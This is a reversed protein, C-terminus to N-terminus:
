MKQAIFGGIAAIVFNAIMSLPINVLAVFLAAAVGLGGALAATGADGTATGVGFGVAKLVLDLVLTIIGSVLAAFLGALGAGVLDLKFMKVARYGAWAFLIVNLPVLLFHLLGLFSVFTALLQVIFWLITVLGMPLMSVKFAKGFDVM